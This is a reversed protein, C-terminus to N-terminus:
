LYKAEDQPPYGYLKCFIPDIDTRSGGELTSELIPLNALARELM